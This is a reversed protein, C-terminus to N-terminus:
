LPVPEKKSLLSKDPLKQYIFFKLYRQLAATLPPNESLPNQNITATPSSSFECVIIQNM